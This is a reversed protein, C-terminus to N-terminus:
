ITSNEEESDLPYITICPGFEYFNVSVHRDRKEMADDVLKFLIEKIEDNSFKNGDESM